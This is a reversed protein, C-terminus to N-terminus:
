TMAQKFSSNSFVTFREATNREWSRACASADPTHKCTSSMEAMSSWFRTPSTAASLAILAGGSAGFGRLESVAMEPAPPLSGATRCSNCSKFSSCRVIFSRLMCICDSIDVTRRSREVRAVSSSCTLAFKLCCMVFACSPPASAPRASYSRCSACALAWCSWFCASNSAKLFSKFWLSPSEACNLSRLFMTFFFVVSFLSRFCRRAAAPKAKGSSPPSPM